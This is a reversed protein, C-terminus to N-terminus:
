DISLFSAHHAHASESSTDGRDLFLWHELIRRYESDSDSTAEMAPSEPILNSTDPGSLPDIAPSVPQPDNQESRSM